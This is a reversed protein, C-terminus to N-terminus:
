GGTENDIFDRDNEDFEEEILSNVKEKDNNLHRHQFYCTFVMFLLCIFVGICSFIIITAQTTLGAIEGQSRSAAAKKHTILHTNILPKSHTIIHTNMPTNILQIHM